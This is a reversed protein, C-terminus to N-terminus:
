LKNEECFNKYYTSHKICQEESWKWLDKSIKESKALETPEKLKNNLYFKGSEVPKVSCHIVCQAGNHLDKGFIWNIPWKLLMWNGWGLPDVDNTLEVFGPCMAVSTIGFKEYYQQHLESTHYINCIKTYCYQEFLGKLSKSRGELPFNTYKRFDFDNVGEEIYHHAESGVYVVRGKSKALHPIL